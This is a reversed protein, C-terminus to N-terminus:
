TLQGMETLTGYNLRVIKTPHRFEPVNIFLM